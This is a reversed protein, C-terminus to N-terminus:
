IGNTKWIFLYFLTVQSPEYVYVAAFPYESWKATKNSFTYLIDDKLSKREFEISHHTTANKKFKTTNIVYKTTKKIEKKSNSRSINNNKHQDETIHKKSHKATDHDHSGQDVHSLLIKEHPAENSKKFDEDYDFSFLGKRNFNPIPTMRDYLEFFKIKDYAITEKNVETTVFSNHFIKLFIDQSPRQDNTTSSTSYSIDTKKNIKDSVPKTIVINPTTNYTNTYAKKKLSVSARRTFNRGTAFFNPNRTTIFISRHITTQLRQSEYWKTKSEGIAPGKIHFVVFAPNSKRTSRSRTPTVTEKCKSAYHGNKNTDEKKNPDNFYYFEINSPTSTLQVMPLRTSFVFKNNTTINNQESIGSSLEQNPADTQDLFIKTKRWLMNIIEYQRRTVRTGMNWKKLMKSNTTSIFPQTTAKSIEIYPKNNNKVVNHSGFFGIENENNNNFIGVLNNEVAFVSRASCKQLLQLLVLIIVSYVFNQENKPM